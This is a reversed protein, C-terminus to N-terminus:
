LWSPFYEWSSTQPLVPDRGCKLCRFLNLYKIDIGTDLPATENMRHLEGIKDELRKKVQSLENIRNSVQDHKSYFFDTYFDIENLPGLNGFRKITFISKVENLTFGLGKLYLLKELDKRCNEDFEYQGKSKAPIILGLDIYHRVADISLNNSSAFKGIKM